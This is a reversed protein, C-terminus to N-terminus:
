SLEETKWIFIDHLDETTGQPNLKVSLNPTDEKFAEKNDYTQLYLAFDSLVGKIPYGGAVGDFIALVEFVAFDVAEQVIEKVHSQGQSDLKNFWESWAM